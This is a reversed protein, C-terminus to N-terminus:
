QQGFISPRGTKYALLQDQWYETSPDVPFGPDGDGGAVAKIEEESLMSIRRDTMKERRIGPGRGEV